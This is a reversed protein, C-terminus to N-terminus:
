DLYRMRNKARIEENKKSQDEAERRIEDVKAINFDANKALYNAIFEQNLLGFYDPYKSGMLKIKEDQYYEDGKNEHKDDWKNKDEFSNGRYFFTAIARLIM